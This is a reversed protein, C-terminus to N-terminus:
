CFDRLMARTGRFFEVNEWNKSVAVRWCISFLNRVWNGWVAEVYYICITKILKMLNLSGTTPGFYTYPIGRGAWRSGKPRSTDAVKGFPVAWELTWHRSGRALCDAAWEIRGPKGKSISATERSKARRSPFHRSVSFSTSIKTTANKPFNIWQNQQTQWMLFM